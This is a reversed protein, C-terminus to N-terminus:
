SAAGVLDLYVEELTRRDPQVRVVRAGAAVLAAVVDPVVDLSALDMTLRPGSAAATVGQIAGLVALWPAAEGEVEVVVRTGALRQRLAAPTDLALLSTNLVAIRDSFEEAEALNHTSVLVARGDRRLDLILDRMQRASAPDLGSTPEDLLIVPPRHILARAIAVRQKLGKSLRGALDGARDTLGVQALVADVDQAPHALGQLRAHTLLNMRVSLREWLGPAETLLGMSRRAQDATAATLPVQNLTISGSTPLILGAVMRMTTTKGAGNPGLVTVIEGAAVTLSLDRVAVRADFTRTLHDAVLLAAPM